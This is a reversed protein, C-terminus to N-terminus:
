QENAYRERLALLRPQVRKMNAMSRYSTAALHYLALKVALTLLVISWGWNHTWAHMKQMLWFLPKAIFWLAGYDVTLDLGPAIKELVDQDKPGAYLRVAFSGTANPAVRQPPGYLGVIYRNGDLVKTYYHYPQERDPVVAAVFYHQLIAAWGQTIDRDLPSDAMDDFAIKEYRKEPSSIAAGTYTYVVGKKEKNVRRLLQGYVRGQWDTASDNRVTYRLDILHSGRHFVYTKTVEVGDASRWRLALELTDANPALEYSHSAAQYPQKHTPAAQDSLLGGQIVFTLAESTDLLAFPEDRRDASVPYKRLLVRALDGGVSNIEASLTDTEVKVTTGGTPPNPEPGASPATISPIEPASPPGPTAAEAAPSAVTPTAAAARLRGYDREWAQWILILVFCLSLILILRLNDM